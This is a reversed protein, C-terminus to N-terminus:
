LARADHELNRPPHHRWLPPTRRYWHREPAFALRDTDAGVEPDLGREVRHHGPDRARDLRTKKELLLRCVLNCPSQLESTHEESRQEIAAARRFDQHDGGTGLDADRRLRYRRRVGGPPAHPQHRHRPGLREGRLVILVSRFLTAYPFLPSRRPHRIM